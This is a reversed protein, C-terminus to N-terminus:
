KTSKTNNSPKHKHHKGPFAPRAPVETYCTTADKDEYMTRRMTTQCHSRTYGQSKGQQATKEQVEHHKPVTAVSKTNRCSQCNLLLTQSCAKLHLSLTIPGKKNERYKISRWCKVANSFPPTDVYYTYTHPKASGGCYKDHKAEYFLKSYTTLANCTMWYFHAQACRM